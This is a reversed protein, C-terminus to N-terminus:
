QIFSEVIEGANAPLITFYQGNESGILSCSKSSEARRCAQLFFLTCNHLMNFNM